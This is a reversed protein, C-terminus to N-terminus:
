TSITKILGCECMFLPYKNMKLIIPGEVRKNVKLENPFNLVRINWIEHSFKPINCDERSFHKKDELFQLILHLAMQEGGFLIWM